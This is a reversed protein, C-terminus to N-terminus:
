RIIKRLADVLVQTNNFPKPISKDNAAAGIAAAVGDLAPYSVYGEEALSRCVRSYKNGHSPGVPFVVTRKGSAVAESVMSISEGSVVVISALGLFGGVTEPVNAQNAVILLATQPNDRFERIVLHEVDGPTRRSTTVLLGFGHRAAASKVQGIVKKLDGEDMVLGQASGGVFRM